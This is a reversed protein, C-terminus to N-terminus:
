LSAILRGAIVISVCLVLSGVAIATSAFPPRAASEWEHPKRRLQSQLKFTVAVLMLVLLMKIRFANNMLERAPETVTLLIGSVLLVALTVWVWPLFARAMSQLGPGAHTLRLLRFNLMTVMTLVAAIALIHITQVAPVFWGLNAFLESVPTAALWNCFSQIM